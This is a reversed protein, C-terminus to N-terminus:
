PVLDEAWAYGSYSRAYHFIQWFVPAMCACNNPLYSYTFLFHMPWYSSSLSVLILWIVRVSNPYLNVYWRQKSNMDLTWVEPEYSFQISSLINLVRIPFSSDMVVHEVTTKAFMVYWRQMRNMDLNWVEPEDSFQIYSLINLVRIHFSSDMVVHEVTTKALMVYWGQLRSM